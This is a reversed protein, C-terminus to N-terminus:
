SAQEGVEAPACWLVEASALDREAASDWGGTVLVRGGPLVTMTHQQRGERMSAAPSFDNSAPDYFESTDLTAAVGNESISYGGCVLVRGDPLKAVTAASRSTLLRGTPSFRGSLPDYLEACRASAGGVILVSGDDLVQPETCWLNEHAFNMRGTAEFGGSVPHFLEATRLDGPKGDPRIHEGGVLLVRGDQLLVAGHSTRREALAGVTKFWGTVPDFVEAYALGANNPGVEGGAVLVRGDAMLTASHASRPFRLSYLASFQESEPDFIETSHPADSGGVILVRGDNLRTATSYVGHQRVMPGVLRFESSAPDYIKAIRSYFGTILVKGNALLTARHGWRAPGMWGTESWAGAELLAGAIAGPATLHRRRGKIEAPPESVCGLDQSPKRFVDLISSLQYNM